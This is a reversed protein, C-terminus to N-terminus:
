GHTDTDRVSASGKTLLTQVGEINGSKCFDFILSDDPVAPFVKLTSKWGQYSRAISANVGFKIGLRALWVAPYWTFYTAFEYLDKSQEKSSEFRTCTRFVRSRFYVAGFITKSTYSLQQTLVEERYRHSRYRVARCPSYATKEPDSHEQPPTDESEIILTNRNQKRPQPLQIQQPPKYPYSKEEIAALYEQLANNMAMELGPQYVPNAFASVMRHVETRLDQIHENYDQLGKAPTRVTDSHRSSGLSEFGRNIAMLSQEHLNRQM